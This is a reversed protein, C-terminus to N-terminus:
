MHYHNLRAVTDEEIQEYKCGRSIQPVCGFIALVVLFFNLLKKLIMKFTDLVSKINVINQINVRMLMKNMM